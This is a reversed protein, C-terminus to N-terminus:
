AADEAEFAEEAARDREAMFVVRTRYYQFYNSQDLDGTRDFERYCRAMRFFETRLSDSFGELNCGMRLEGDLRDDGDIVAIMRGSADFVTVRVRGPGIGRCSVSVGLEDLTVRSEVNSWRRPWADRVLKIAEIATGLM